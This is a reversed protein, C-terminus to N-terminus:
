LQLQNTRYYQLSSLSAVTLCAIFVPVIHPATVEKVLAHHVHVTFSIQKSGNFQRFLRSIIRSSNECSSFLACLLLAPTSALTRALM